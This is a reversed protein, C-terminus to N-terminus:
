IEGDYYTINLKGDVVTFPASLTDLNRAAEAAAYADDRAAEAEGYLADRAAEADAYASEFAAHAAAVAAERAENLMADISSQYEEAEGDALDVNDLVVFPLTDTTALEGSKTLEFYAVFVPGAWATLDTTVTYSVKGGAANAVTANRKVLEGKANVACFKATYGTLSFPLGDMTVDVTISTGAEGRRLVIPEIAGARGRRKLLDLTRTPESYTTM